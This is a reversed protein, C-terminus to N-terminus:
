KMNRQPVFRDRSSLMHATLDFRGAAWEEMNFPGYLALAEM